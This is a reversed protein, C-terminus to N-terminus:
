QNGHRRRVRHCGDGVLAGAANVSPLEIILDTTTPRSCRRPTKCSTPSISSPASAIRQVPVRMIFDRMRHIRRLVAAIEGTNRRRTDREAGFTAVTDLPERGRAPARPITAFNAAGIVQVALSPASESAITMDATALPGWSFRRCIARMRGANRRILHTERRCRAAHTLRPSYACAARNRISRSATSRRAIRRAAPCACRSRPICPISRMSAPRARMSSRPPSTPRRRRSRIRTAPARRNPAAAAARPSRMAALGVIQLRFTSM